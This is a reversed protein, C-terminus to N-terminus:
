FSVDSTEVLTPVGSSVNGQLSWPGTWTIHVQALKGQWNRSDSFFVIKNTRTRGRWKGKHRTEVLIEVTKDLLQANIEGVIREQLAEIAVRRREKEEAPVDDEWKAAATDTRPSYSAIHVADFRIEELLAYTRDFQSATEGPFGVIVDTSLGVHPMSERIQAILERYHAITYHRNMRCLIEDDGAQVPLEIHECVKPLSAATRILRSTMDKPHSTLFRIRWLDPIEHVAVLLDALSPQAPLDHGYSDVNQGLLTVERAGSAVLQRVDDVIQPIPRSIEPGRRYPVICYSCFNNCGHVITTYACIAPATSSAPVSIQGAAPRQKLFSLLPAIDSPGLLLDVFPYGEAVRQREEAQGVFCGWLVLISEPRRRKVSKLSNLRGKVKDEASQRVVCTNLVMVDAEEMRLARRYGMEELSDALRRSDAVNMQCGITWIYYTNM